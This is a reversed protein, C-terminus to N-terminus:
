NKKKLFNIIKISVLPFIFTGIILMVILVLFYFKLKLDGDLFFFLEIIILILNVIIYSFFIIYFFLLFNKYSINNKKLQYARYATGSHSLLSNLGLSEFYIKMWNFYSLFSNLGSKFVLYMKVSVLNLHILHILIISFIVLYNNNIKEYIKSLDFENILYFLVTLFFLIKLASFIKKYKM